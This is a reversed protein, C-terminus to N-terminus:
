IAYRNDCRLLTISNHPIGMNALLLQLWASEFTANAFARHEFEINVFIIIPPSSNPVNLQIVFHFIYTLAFFSNNKKSM